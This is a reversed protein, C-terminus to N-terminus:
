PALARRVETLRNQVLESVPNKSVGLSRVANKLQSKLIALESDSGTRIFESFEAQRQINVYFYDVFNKDNFQANANMM